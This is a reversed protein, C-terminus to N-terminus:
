TPRHHHFQHERYLSWLISLYDTDPDQPFREIGPIDEFLDLVHETFESESLEIGHSDIIFDIIQHLESNSLDFVFHEQFSRM